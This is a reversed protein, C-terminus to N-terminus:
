AWAAVQCVILVCSPFRRPDRVRLVIDNWFPSAHIRHNPNALDSMSCVQANYLSQLFIILIFALLVFFSKWCMLCHVQWLKLFTHPTAKCVPSVMFFVDFDCGLTAATNELAVGYSLDPFLHFSMVSM